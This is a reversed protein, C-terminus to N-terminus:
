GAAPYPWNEEFFIAPEKSPIQGPRHVKGLGGAEHIAGRHGSMAASDVLFAANGADTAPIPIGAYSIAVHFQM